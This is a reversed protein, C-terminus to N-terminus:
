GERVLTVPITMRGSRGKSWSCSMKHNEDVDKRGTPCFPCDEEPPWEGRGERPDGNGDLPGEFLCYDLTGRGLRVRVDLEHDLLLAAEEHGKARLFRIASLLSEDQNWFREYLFAQFGGEEVTIGHLGAIDEVRNRHTMNWQDFVRKVEAETLGTEHYFKTYFDHTDCAQAEKWAEILELVTM